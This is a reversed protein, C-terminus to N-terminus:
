HAEGVAAAARAERYRVLDEEGELFKMAVADARESQFLSLLDVLYDQRDDSFRRIANEILPLSELDRQTALGLLAACVLDEDDTALAKRLLARSRPDEGAVGLADRGMWWYEEPDVGREACHQLFEPSPEGNVRPFRLAIGAHSVLENWIEADNGRRLLAGALRHRESYTDATDYRSRLLAVSSADGQRASEMLADHLEYDSCLPVDFRNAPPSDSCASSCSVVITEQITENVVLNHVPVTTLEGRVLVSQPDPDETFELEFHIEYEGEAVGAFRYCGKEDSVEIRRLAPSELRVECGPLPNGGMTVRGEVTSLPVAATPLSLISLLLLLTGRM